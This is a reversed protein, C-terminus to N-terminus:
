KLRRSHSKKAVTKLVTTPQTTEDASVALAGFSVAATIIIITLIIKTKKM